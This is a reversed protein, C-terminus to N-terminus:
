AGFFDGQATVLESWKERILALSRENAAARSQDSDRMKRPFSAFHCCAFTRTFRIGIRNISACRHVFPRVTNVQSPYDPKVFQALLYNSQSSPNAPM